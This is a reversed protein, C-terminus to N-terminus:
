IKILKVSTTRESLLKEQLNNKKDNKMDDFSKCNHMEYMICNTCFDLACYKCTLNLGKRKKCHVCKAM